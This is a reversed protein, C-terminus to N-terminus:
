SIRKRGQACNLLDTAVRRGPAAVRRIVPTTEESALSRMNKISADANATSLEAARKLLLAAAVYTIALNPSSM